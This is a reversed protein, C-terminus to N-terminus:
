LTELLATLTHFWPAKNEEDPLPVKHMVALKLPHAKHRALDVTKVFRFQTWDHTKKGLCVALVEFQNASYFRSSADNNSTRTKQVEIKYAVVKGKSRYAEESNRINKCEIRIPDSSGTLLITYDHKGDEDHAVFQDIVGDAALAELKKGLQMEAVVGELAVKARFRRNMADLLEEATLGYELELPHPM